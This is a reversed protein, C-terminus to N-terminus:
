RGVGSRRGWGLRPQVGRVICLVMQGGKGIGRTVPTRTEVRDVQTNKPVVRQEVPASGVPIVHHGEEMMQREPAAPQAAKQLM